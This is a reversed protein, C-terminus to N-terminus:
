ERIGGRRDALEKEVEEWSNLLPQNGLSKQRLTWLKKGLETKPQYNILKNNEEEDEKTLDNILALVKAKKENDLTQWKELLFQETIM